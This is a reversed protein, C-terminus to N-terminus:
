NNLIILTGASFNNQSCTWGAPCRTQNWSSYVDRSTCVNPWPGSNGDATALENSTYRQNNQRFFIKLALVGIFNIFLSVLSVLVIQYIVRM